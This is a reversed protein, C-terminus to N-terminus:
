ILSKFAGLSQGNSMRVRSLLMPDDGPYVKGPQTTVGCKFGAEKVYETCDKTYDGFPYAFADGNGCIEISKKLDILAEEKTLATFIGGHGINGGARHMNHSHSQFSIYDNKYTKVKNEGNQSTILFSTAPIKYEELIPIGLILFSDAGDDFTLVISKEPLILKGDIYERVETWSPYYYKESNLYELEAKLDTTSIYNANLKEPPNSPDYVYHYMCIALGKTEINKNPTVTVTRSKEDLKEKSKKDTVTYVIEYEGVYNFKIKNGDTSPEQAKSLETGDKLRIQTKIEKSIDEDRSNKASVEGQVYEEGLPVTANNEGELKIEASDKDFFNFGVIVVGLVVAAAVLGAIAKKMM